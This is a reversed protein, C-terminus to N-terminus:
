FAARQANKRGALRSYFVQTDAADEDLASSQWQTYLMVKFPFLVVGHNYKNDGDGPIFVPFTEIGAPYPLGLTEPLDHDFLQKVIFQTDAEHGNLASASLLVLLISILHKHTKLLREPNKSVIQTM